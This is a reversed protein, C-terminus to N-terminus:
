ENMGEAKENGQRVLKQFQLSKITENYQLKFKLVLKNFQVETMKCREKEEQTLVELFYQGKKGIWNKAIAIRGTQLMNYSDFIHNVEQIFNKLKSYKGEAEWNFMPQQM